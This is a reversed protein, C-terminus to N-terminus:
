QKLRVGLKWAISSCASAVSCTHMSTDITYTAINTELQRILKTTILEILVLLLRWARRAGVARTELIQQWQEVLVKDRPEAAM